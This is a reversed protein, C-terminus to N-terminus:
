RLDYGFLRGAIQLLRSDYIYGGIMHAQVLSMAPLVPAWFPPRPQATVADVVTVALPLGVLTFVRTFDLTVIAMTITGACMLRWRWPLPWAAFVCLWFPGFSLLLHHVPTTAAAELSSQLLTQGIQARSVPVATLLSHHYGYITAFGAAGGAAAVGAPILGLVASSGLILLGMEVHSLVLLAATMIQLVPNAITPLLLAFGVVYPDSKGIYQTLVILLPTALMMLMADDRRSGYRVAALRYVSWMAFVLGAGFVIVFSTRPGLLRTLPYGLFFPLPSFQLFQRNPDPHLDLPSSSLLYFDAVDITAYGYLGLFLPVVLLPRARLAQFLRTM